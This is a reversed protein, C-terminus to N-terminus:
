IFFLKRPANRCYFKRINNKDCFDLISFFDKHLTPEGWSITISIKKWNYKKLIQEITEVIIEFSFFTVNDIHTFCFVCKQNCIRNIRFILEVSTEDENIWDILKYM